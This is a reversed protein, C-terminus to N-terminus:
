IVDLSTGRRLTMSAGISEKASTQINDKINEWTRNVDRDDNLNELAAYKNTIETHYQERVEPGNLKRLNFKQGDFRQAALKGM